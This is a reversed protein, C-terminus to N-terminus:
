RLDDIERATRAAPDTVAAELRALRSELEEVKRLRQRDGAQGRDGDISGADTEEPGVIRELTGARAELRRSRDDLEAILQQNDQNIQEQQRWRTNYHLFLWPMAVFMALVGCIAIILDSTERTM